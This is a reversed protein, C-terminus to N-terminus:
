IDEQDLLARFKDDLVNYKKFDSINVGHNIERHVVKSELKMYEVVEKVLKARTIREQAQLLRAVTNEDWWKNIVEEGLDPSSVTQRTEYDRWHKLMEKDKEQQTMQEKSKAKM